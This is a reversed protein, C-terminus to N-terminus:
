RRMGEKEMLDVIGTALKDCAAMTPHIGDVMLEENM